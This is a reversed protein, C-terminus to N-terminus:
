QEETFSDPDGALFLAPMEPLKWHAVGLVCHVVGLLSGLRQMNEVQFKLFSQKFRREAKHWGIGVGFLMVHSLPLRGNEVTFVAIVDTEAGEKWQVVCEQDGTEYLDSARLGTIAADVGRFHRELCETILLAAEQDVVAQCIIPVIFSAVPQSPINTQSPSIRNRGGHVGTLMQQEAAHDIASPQMALTHEMQSLREQMMAMQQLM